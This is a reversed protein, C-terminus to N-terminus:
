LPRLHFQERLPNRRRYALCDDIARQRGARSKDLRREDLLEADTSHRQALRKANQLALPKHRDMGM